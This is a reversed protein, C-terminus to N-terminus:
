LTEIFFEIMNAVTLFLNPDGGSSSSFWVEKFKLKLWFPDVFFYVRM